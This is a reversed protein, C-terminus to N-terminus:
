KMKSGYEERIIYLVRRVVNGISFESPSAQQLVQGLSRDFVDYIMDYIM